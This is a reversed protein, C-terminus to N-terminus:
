NLRVEANVKEAEVKKGNGCGEFFSWDQVTRRVILVNERSCLRQKFNNEFGRTILIFVNTAIPAKMAPIKATNSHCPDSATTRIRLGNRCVLDM